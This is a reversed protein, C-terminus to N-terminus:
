PERYSINLDVRTDIGEVHGHSTYQWMEYHGDYLPTERYEALWIYYDNLEDMTLNHHYWNRSAYIGPTYGANKITKCFADCVATRTAVDIGNARGNSGVGETDIFIPYDLEVDNLLALAMSAEEVAEVDNVAQTFFYIGVKIGARKAGALNAAFYPDEVLAGTSSGRYGCRIIAFDIGEAKVLDWDIEGNWKSVDIGMQIMDTSDFIDTYETDDKDDADIDEQSSDELIADIESETKILYRIDAIPTYSISEQVTITVGNEPVIYVDSPQLVVEYEGAKVDEVHIMGDLDTDEYEEDGSVTVSFPEGEVPAGNEDVITIRIDKAVSTVLLSVNEKEQPENGAELTQNQYEEFQDQHDFFTDDQLFGDLDAGIVMGNEDVNQVKTDQGQVTEQTNGGFIAQYNMILVTIAVLLIIGLGASIALKKTKSDM